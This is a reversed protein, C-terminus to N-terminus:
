RPDAIVNGAGAAIQDLILERVRPATDGSDPLFIFVCIGDRRKLAVWSELEKRKIPLVEAIGAYALKSDRMVIARDTLALPGDIGKKGFDIDCRDPTGEVVHSTAYSLLVVKEGGALAADAAAIEGGRVDQCGHAAMFGGCKSRDLDASSVVGRADFRVILRSVETSVHEFGFGSVILFAFAGVESSRASGYAFWSDDVARGDPEGLALLVDVRTTRGVELKQQAAITIDGRSSSDLLAPTAFPICGALACTTAVVSVLACTRRTWAEVHAFRCM